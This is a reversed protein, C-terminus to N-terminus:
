PHHSTQPYFTFSKRIFHGTVKGVKHNAEGTIETGCRTQINKLSGILSKSIIAEKEEHIAFRPVAGEAAM